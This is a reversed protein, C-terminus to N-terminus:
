RLIAAGDDDGMREIHTLREWAAMINACSRRFAEYPADHGWREGDVDRVRPWFRSDTYYANGPKWFRVYKVAMRQAYNGDASVVESICTFYRWLEMQYQPQGGLLHIPWGAFEWLPNPTGGYKTPVSYGLVVRKGGIRRPLRGIQGLVKPILVVWEVYQAAEEAWSLVDPLQEEREWDMVTAMYPRHEALGAMYAARDPKKWDQDAFWIPHYISGPLRAGYYFGHALAIDTLQTNGNACYVLYM